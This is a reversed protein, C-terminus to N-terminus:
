ADAEEAEALLKLAAKEALAKVTAAAEIDVFELKPVAEPTNSNKSYILDYDFIIRGSGDSRLIQDLQDVNRLSVSKLLKGNRRDLAMARCDSLLYTLKTPAIIERGIRWMMAALLVLPGILAYGIYVKAQDADEPTAGSTPGSTAKIWAILGVFALIALLVFLRYGIESWHLRPRGIWLIKEGPELYPQFLARDLLAASAGGSDGIGSGESTSRGDM